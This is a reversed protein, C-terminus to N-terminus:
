NSITYMFIKSGWEPHLINQAHWVVRNHFIRVSTTEEFEDPQDNLLQPPNVLFSPISINKVWIGGFGVAGSPVGWVVLGDSIAPMIMNNEFNYVQVIEKKTSILDYLYIITRGNIKESWVVKDNYIDVGYQDGISPYIYKLEPTDINYIKNNAYGTFSMVVKNNEIRIREIWQNEPYEFLKSTEGTAINYLMVERPRHGWYWYHYLMHFVIYNGDISVGDAQAHYYNTINKEVGTDLDYLYVDHHGENMSSGRWDLWVVHNGSIDPTSQDAADVCISETSGGDANFLYIDRNYQDIRKEYVIKDGDVRPDNTNYDSVVSMVGQPRWPYPGQADTSNNLIDNSLSGGPLGPNIGAAESPQSSFYNQIQPINAFMGVVVVVALTAASINRIQTKQTESFHSVSKILKQLAKIDIQVPKKKTKM